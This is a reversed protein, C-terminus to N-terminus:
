PLECCREQTVSYPEPMLHLEFSRLLQELRSRAQMRFQNSSLDIYASCSDAHRSVGVNMRVYSCRSAPENEIQRQLGGVNSADACIM